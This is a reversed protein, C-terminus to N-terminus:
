SHKQARSLTEMSLGLVKNRLFLLVRPLTHRLAAMEFPRALDTPKSVAEM